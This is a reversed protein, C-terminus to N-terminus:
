ELLSVTLDVEHGIGLPTRLAIGVPKCRMDQTLVLEIRQAARAVPLVFQPQHHIVLIRRSAALKGGPPNPSLEPYVADAIRIPLICILGPCIQSQGGVLDAEVPGASRQVSRVGATAAVTRM